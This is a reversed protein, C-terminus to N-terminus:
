MQRESERRRCGEGEGSGLSGLGSVGDSPTCNCGRGWLCGGGEERSNCRPAATFFCVLFFSYSPVFCLFPSAGPNVEACMGQLSQPWFPVSKDLSGMLCSQCVLPVCCLRFLHRSIEQKSTLWSDWKCVSLWFLVKGLHQHVFTYTRLERICECVCLLGLCM